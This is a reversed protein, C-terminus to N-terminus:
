KEPHAVKARFYLTGENMIADIREDYAREAKASAQAARARRANAQQEYYEREQQDQRVAEDYLAQWQDRAQASRQQAKYENHVVRSYDWGPGTVSSSRYWYGERTSAPAVRPVYTVGDIGRKGLAGDWLVVTRKFRKVKGGDAAKGAKMPFAEEVAERVKDLSYSVGSEVTESIIVKKSNRPIFVIEFRLDNPDLDLRRIEPAIDGFFAKTLDTVEKKSIQGVHPKKRKSQFYVKSGTAVLFDKGDLSSLFTEAEFPTRTGNADLRCASEIGQPTSKCIIVEENEMFPLLYFFEGACKGPQQDKPLAKIFDFEGDRFLAVTKKYLVKEELLKNEQKAREAKEREEEARKKELRIKEEAERRARAEKEEAERRAREQREEEARESELRAREAAATRETQLLREKRNQIVVYTGFVGGVFAVILLIGVIKDWRKRRHERDKMEEYFRVHEEAIRIKREADMNPQPSPKNGTRIVRLTKKQPPADESKPPTSPTRRAHLGTPLEIRSPKRYESKEGCYPCVVRQGNAIDGVLEIENGCIGCKIIVHDGRRQGAAARFDRCLFFGGGQAERSATLFGLFFCLSLFRTQAGQM